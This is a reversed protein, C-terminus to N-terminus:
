VWSPKQRHDIGCGPPLSILAEITFGAADDRAHYDTVSLVSPNTPSFLLAIADLITMKGVDGGGLIVNVGREPHWFLKENGPLERHIAPIDRTERSRTDCRENGLAGARSGRPSSRHSSRTARSTARTCPSCNARQSRASLKAIPPM